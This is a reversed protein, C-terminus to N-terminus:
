KEIQLVPSKIDNRGTRGAKLESKLITDLASNIKLVEAGWESCKKVIAEFYTPSCGVDSFDDKVDHTYFILWGGHNIADDITEFITSLPYKGEYLKIAKLNFLDIKGQNIGHGIGRASRFRNILHKKIKRNQAGFPYSFNEFLLNTNIKKLASYNADLDLCASQFSTRAYDLHGYTHCGFEHHQCIARDLDSLTFFDDRNNNKISTLFSLALYFTGAYGYANLIPGGHIFASSPADDFTFSVITRDMNLEIAEKLTLSAWLRKVYKVSRYYGKNEM